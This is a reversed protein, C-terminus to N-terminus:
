AAGRMKFSEGPRAQWADQLSTHGMHALGAKLVRLAAPAV